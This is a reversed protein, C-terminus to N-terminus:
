AKKKKELKEIGELMILYLIYADNTDELPKQIKSNSMIEENNHRLLKVYKDNKYKDNEVLAKHIEVKTFDGGKLGDLNRYELKPKRIGIDIPKYTLQCSKLKLSTPALVVIEKSISDYLKKRLLTSFTVLDILSNQDSSGFSYGEIIVKSPLNLDINNLIDELIMTSIKDYDKLKILEGDSYNEYERYSIYRYTIVEEMIKFWKRLGKKGSASEERCYNFVKGNVVLATSILSPDLAIINEIM